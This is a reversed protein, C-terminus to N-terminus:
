NYINHLSQGFSVKDTKKAQIEVYATKAVSKRRAPRKAPPEEEADADNEELQRKKGKAAVGRRPRVAAKTPKPAEDDSTEPTVSQVSTKTSFTPSM